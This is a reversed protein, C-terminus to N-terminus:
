LSLGKGEIGWENGETRGTEGVVVKEPERVGECCEECSVNGEGVSEEGGGEKRGKRLRRRLLWVVHCGFIGIELAMCLCYMVGMLVDFHRDVVLSLLSFLAGSFDVSLFLWNIGVM